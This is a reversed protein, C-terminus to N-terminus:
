RKIKKIEDFTFYASFFSPEAFEVMVPADWALEACCCTPDTECKSIIYKVKGELGKSSFESASSGSQVNATERKEGLKDRSHYVDKVILVSDGESIGFDTDIDHLHMCLRSRCQSPQAKRLSGPVKRVQSRASGCASHTMVFPPLFAVRLAPYVPLGMELAVFLFWSVSRM